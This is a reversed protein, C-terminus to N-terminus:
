PVRRQTPKERRQRVSAAFARLHHQADDSLQPHTNALNRRLRCMCRHAQQSYHLVPSNGPQVRPLPRALLRHHEVNCRPFFRRRKCFFRRLEPQWTRKWEASHNRKERRRERTQTATCATSSAPLVSTAGPEKVTSAM